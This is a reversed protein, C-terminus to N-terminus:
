EIKQLEPFVRKSILEQLGIIKLHVSFMSKYSNLFKSLTRTKRLAGPGGTKIRCQVVLLRSLAQRDKRHRSDPKTPTHTHTHTHKLAGTVCVVVVLAGGIVASRVGPIAM